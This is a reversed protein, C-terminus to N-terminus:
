PSGEIITGNGFKGGYFTAGFLNGSPDSVLGEPQGGDKRGTFSYLIAEQFSDPQTRILQFAEGWGHPGGLAATGYFNGNSDLILGGPGSGKKAGFFALTELSWTGNQGPALEFVTGCGRCNGGSGTTGFLNGASDVIVNSPWQGDPGQFNYLVKETWVGSQPILEFVTGCGNYNSIFCQEATGNGGQVTTGFLNGAQDLTLSVQPSAGDSPGGKFSYLINETWSGSGNSVLEFVTGLGYAGGASTTGYLDGTADFILSSWPQVGDGPSSGFDYLTTESWTGNQSPKLEFVFGVGHLGGDVITGFLSGAEDLALAAGNSGGSGDFEYVLQYQWRGEQLPSLRYIIEDNADDFGTGYLNGAPDVILLSDPHQGSQFHYLIKGTAAFVPNALTLLAASIIFLLTISKM